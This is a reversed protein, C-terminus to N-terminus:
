TRRKEDGIGNADEAVMQVPVPPQSSTSDLRIAGQRRFLKGWTEMAVVVVIFVIALLVVLMDNRERSSIGKHYPLGTQASSPLYGLDVLEATDDEDDVLDPLPILDITPQKGHPIRHKSLPAYPDQYAHRPMKAQRERDLVPATESRIRPAADSVGDLHLTGAPVCMSLPAASLAFFISSLKM